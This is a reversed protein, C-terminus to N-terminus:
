AVTPFPNELDTLPSAPAPAPPASALSNTDLDRAPTTAMQTATSVPLRAMKPDAAGSGMVTTCAPLDCAGNDPGETGAM